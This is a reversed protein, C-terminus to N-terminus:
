RYPRRTNTGAVEFGAPPSVVVSLDLVRPQHEHLRRETIAKFIMTSVFRSSELRGEVLPLSGDGVIMVRDAPDSKLKYQVGWCGNLADRYADDPGVIKAFSLDDSRVIHIEPRDNQDLRIIIVRPQARDTVRDGSTRRAGASTAARHM